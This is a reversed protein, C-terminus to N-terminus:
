DNDDSQDDPTDDSECIGVREKRQHAIMNDLAGTDFVGMIVNRFGSFLKGQLAKTMFDAAMRFTPWHIIKMNEREVCDKVWFYRINIHRSQSGASSRGNIEMLMASQNDQYIINNKITHGQAEVFYKTWIIYPLVDNLGVLEAETSSKTNLKQKTSRCCVMGRGFSICGGTHSRMDYHPAYSADVWTKMNKLSDAGLTLKLDITGKLYQLM